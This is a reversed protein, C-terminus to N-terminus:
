TRHLTTCRFRFCCALILSWAASRFALAPARWTRTFCAVVRLVALPVSCLPHPRRVPTIHAAHLHLAFACEAWNIHQDPDIDFNTQLLQLIVRVLAHATPGHMVSISVQYKRQVGAAGSFRACVQTDCAPNVIAEVPPACVRSMAEVSHCQRM